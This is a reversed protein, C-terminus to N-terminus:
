ARFRDADAQLWVVHGLRRAKSWDILVGRTAISANSLLRVIESGITGTSGTVTILMHGSAYVNPPESARNARLPALGTTNAHGSASGTGGSRPIARGFGLPTRMTASTTSGRSCAPSTRTGSGSPASHYPQTSCASGPPRALVSAATLGTLEDSAIEIRWGLFEERRDIVLVAFRGIDAVAIQQLRRTAPLAMPLSGEAIGRAFSETLFNEMFFVPAIITFPV